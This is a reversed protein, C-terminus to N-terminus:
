VDPCIGIVLFCDGGNAYTSESFMKRAWINAAENGFGSYYQEYSWRVTSGEITVRPWWYGSGYGGNGAIFHFVRYGAPLETLGAVMFSGELGDPKGSLTMGLNIKPIYEKHLFRAFVSTVKDRLTGDENYVKLGAM